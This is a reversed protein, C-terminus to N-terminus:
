RRGRNAAAHVTRGDARRRGARRQDDEVGADDGRDIRDDTEVRSCGRGGRRRAGASM